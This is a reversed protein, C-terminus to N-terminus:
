GQNLWRNLVEQGWPGSIEPHFQCALCRGREMAAVFSGGYDSFSGLWGPPVERVAYSNAFYAYGDSLFRSGEGAQVQNWGFQPVRLSRSFREVKGSVVGLGAVGPSEESEEFLLQLGLCIAMTPEDREFRSRLAEAVGKEELGAMGAGFAGVGPFILREAAVVEEVQDVFRTNAGGRELGAKVSAINAVGTNLIAVERKGM